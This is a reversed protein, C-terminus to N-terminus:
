GRQQGKQKTGPQSLRDHWRSILNHRLITRITNEDTMWWTLPSDTQGDGLAYLLKGETDDRSVAFTRYFSLSASIVRLDQDLVLFPERVTDIIAQAFERAEEIKTLPENNPL